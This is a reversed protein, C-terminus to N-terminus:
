KSSALFSGQFTCKFACSIAMLWSRGCCAKTRRALSFNLRWLLLAILMPQWGHYSCRLSHVLCIFLCSSGIVAHPLALFDDEGFLLSWFKKAAFFGKRAGESDMCSEMWSQNWTLLEGGYSLPGNGRDNKLFRRAGKWYGRAVQLSTLLRVLFTKRECRCFAFFEQRGATILEAKKKGRELGVSNGRPCLLITFSTSNLWVKPLAGADGLLLLLLVLLIRGAGLPHQQPNRSEDDGNPRRYKDGRRCVVNTTGRRM